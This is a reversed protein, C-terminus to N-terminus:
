GIHDMCKRCFLEGVLRADGDCTWDRDAKAGFTNRQLTAKVFCPVGDDDDSAQTDPAPLMISDLWDKHDYKEGDPGPDYFARSPGFVRQILLM